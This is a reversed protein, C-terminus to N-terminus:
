KLFVMKKDAAAQVARAKERLLQLFVYLASNEPVEAVTETSSPLRVSVSVLTRGLSDVVTSLLM